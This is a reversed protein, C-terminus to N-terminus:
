LINSENLLTDQCDIGVAFDKYDLCNFNHIDKVIIDEKIILCTCGVFNYGVIINAPIKDM